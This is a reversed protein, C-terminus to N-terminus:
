RRLIGSVFEDIEIDSPVAGRIVCRLVLWAICADALVVPALAPLPEGRDGGATLAAVINARDRDMAQEWRAHAADETLMAAAIARAARLAGPPRLRQAFAKMGGSIDGITSGTTPLPAAGEVTSFM